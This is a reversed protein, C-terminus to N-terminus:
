KEPVECEMCKHWYGKHGSARHKRECEAWETYCKAWGQLAEKRELKDTWLSTYLRANAAPITKVRFNCLRHRREWKDIWRGSRTRAYLRVSAGGSGPNLDIVYALGGLPCESIPVAFNCAIAIKDPELNSNAADM